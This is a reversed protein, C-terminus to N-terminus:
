LLVKKIQEVTSALQKKQTESTEKMPTPFEDIEKTRTVAYSDIIGILSEVKKGLKHTMIAISAIVFLNDSDIKAFDCNVADAFAKYEGDPIDDIAAKRDEETKAMLARTIASVAKTTSVAEPYIIEEVGDCFLPLPTKDVINVLEDIDKSSRFHDKRFEVEEDPKALMALWVVATKTLYTIVHQRIERRIQSTQQIPLFHKGDIGAKYYYTYNSLSRFTFDNTDKVIGALNELDLYRFLDSFYLNGTSLYMIAELKLKKMTQTLYETAGLISSLRVNMMM